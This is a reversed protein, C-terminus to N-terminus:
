QPLVLTPDPSANSYNFGSAYITGRHDIFLNRQLSFQMLEEFQEFSKTKWVGGGPALVYYDDGFKDYLHKSSTGWDVSPAFVQRYTKGGDTSKHLRFGDQNQAIIDNEDTVFMTVSYEPTNVPKWALGDDSTQLITLNYYSIAMHSTDAFSFIRGLEEQRTLGLTDKQWTLGNDKSCYVGREWKNAWIYDDKTITLEYHYPNEPIPKGLDSWTDGWDASHYLNGNWGAAFVEGNSKAELEKLNTSFPFYIQEWIYFKDKQKFPKGGSLMMTRQNVTDRVMDGIGILIGKTITNLKNKFFATANIETETYFLGDTSYIKALLVQENSQDGTKWRTKMIGNNGAHIIVQDVMGGGGTVELEMVFQRNGAPVVSALDIQIGVSDPLYEGSDVLQNAGAVQFNLSEIIHMGPTPYKECAFLLVIPFLYIFPRRM